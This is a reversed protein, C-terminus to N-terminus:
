LLENNSSGDLPSYFYEQALIRMSYFGPYARDQHAVRSTHLSVRGVM